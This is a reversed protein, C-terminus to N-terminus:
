QAAMFDVVWRRITDALTAAMGGSTLFGNM